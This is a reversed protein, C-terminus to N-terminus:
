VNVFVTNLVYQGQYVLRTTGRRLLQCHYGSIVRPGIGGIWLDPGIGNVHCYVLMGESENRALIFFVGINASCIASMKFSGVKEEFGIGNCSEGARLQLRVELNHGDGSAFRSSMLERGGM